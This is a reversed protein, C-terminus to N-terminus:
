KKKFIKGDEEYILDANKMDERVRPGIPAFDEDFWEILTEKGTNEIYQLYQEYRKTM